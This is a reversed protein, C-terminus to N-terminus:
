TDAVVTGDRLEVRRPMAAAIERDHTIVVITAGEGHLERLLAIIGAGAQSDLNGTPEDAFVISPRAVLARAIAVRQREGGSLKAPHHTLRHGLGVRELVARARVRREAPPAGAYLLGTAVNEEASMGDLLFFQQFVFGIHDARLAALARDRLGAVDSGAVALRGSTPRELTGMIHLLTSKGSGSPGVVALLEGPAVRLSVGRLAEVGGPYAKRVDELALVTV